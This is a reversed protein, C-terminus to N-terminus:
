ARHESLIEGVASLRFGNLQVVNAHARYVPPVSSRAEDKSDLELIIWAKHVGDKCGWDAHTFLHTGTTLLEKIAHNCASTTADHPIEILFRPM